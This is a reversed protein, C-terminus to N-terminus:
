LFNPAFLSNPADEWTACHSTQCVYARVLQGEEGDNLISLFNIKRASASPSSSVDIM